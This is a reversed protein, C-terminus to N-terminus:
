FSFRTKAYDHNKVFYSNVRKKLNKAKGVYLIENQSDFYKYVGPQEPLSAITHKINQLTSM